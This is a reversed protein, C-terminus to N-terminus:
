EAGTDAIIQELEEMRSLQARYWDTEGPYLTDIETGLKQAKLARYDRRTIQVKIDSLETEAEKLALEEAAEADTKGVVITNNIIRVLGGAAEFAEDTVAMDPNQIGDLDKMAQPDTHHVVNGDKRALYVMCIRRMM